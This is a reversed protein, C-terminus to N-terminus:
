ANVMGDVLDVADQVTRLKEEQDTTILINFTEELAVIIEIGDYSDAGLSELTQSMDELDVEHSPLQHRIITKVEEVIMSRDIPM